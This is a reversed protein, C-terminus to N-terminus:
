LPKGRRVFTILPSQTMSIAKEPCIEHCCCCGICKRPDLVPKKRDVITLAKTPCAAVCRGCVICKESVAPRIWVFPRLIGIIPRPINRMFSAAPLRFSQPSVNEVAEGAINITRKGIYPALYPVTEPKIKLIRCLAIDLTAADSSAALFGLHIPTGAGPGDGEMGFVADAINLTAPITDYIAGLLRGFEAPTPHMKHLMAKQFGPIAGYMNKVAATLVTLSHTKVKCVSIVADADLVPKAIAFRFGNVEFMRSGSKEMNLLPVGEEECMVGFGTREWVQELKVVSAPSDAVCPKAGHQKLIRILARVVEPHTTVAQDPTADSLLNPKILVSQGPKVFAGIGGINSLLKEMSFHLKTSYEACKAISVMANM